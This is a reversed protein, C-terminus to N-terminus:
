FPEPFDEPAQVAGLEELITFVLTELAALADYSCLGSFTNDIAEQEDRLAVRAFPGQPGRHVMLTVRYGVPYTRAM